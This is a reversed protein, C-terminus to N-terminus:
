SAKEEFFYLRKKFFMNILSIEYLILLKMFADYVCIFILIFVLLSNKCM